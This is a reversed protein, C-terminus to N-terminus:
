HLTPRDPPVISLNPRTRKPPEFRDFLLFGFLFGGLHSQWAIGDASSISSVSLSMVANVVVMVLAMIQFRRDRLVESVSALPISRPAARFQEFGGRDLAAFLFRFAGGM